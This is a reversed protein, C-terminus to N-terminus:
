ARTCSGAPRDIDKLNRRVAAERDTHEPPQQLFRLPQEALRYRSDTSRRALIVQHAQRAPAASRRAPTYDLPRRLFAAARWQNVERPTVTVPLHVNDNFAHM